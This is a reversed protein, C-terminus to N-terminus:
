GESFRWRCYSTLNNIKYCECCILKGHELSMQALVIQIWVKSLANWLNSIRVFFTIGSFLHRLPALNQKITIWRRLSSKIVLFGNHVGDDCDNFLIWFGFFGTIIIKPCQRRSNRQTNKSCQKQSKYWRTFTRIVLKYKEYVHWNIKDWATCVKKHRRGKKYHAKYM